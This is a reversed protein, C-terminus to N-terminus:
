SCLRQPCQTVCASCAFCEKQRQVRIKNKDVKEFVGKPCVLLCIQCDNCKNIDQQIQGANYVGETFVHALSQVGLKHMLWEAESPRGSVIGRLDFGFWLTIISLALMSKWYIFAPAHFVYISLIVIALVTSLSLVVAKLWGSNGPIYSFGAYLIFGMAWFLASLALFIHPKFLLAIIGAAIWLIFNMSLLMEMRFLFPFKARNMQHLSKRNKLFLPIDKAYAPGFIGSRGTEQKLVLRDIGPASFQPLIIQKHIVRDNVRSTRIVTIASHATLEGGCSACWVNIGNSPAVLLFCNEGRLAKEVRRVTLHFNGTLLVPSNKDPNGIIRLGPEVPNPFWRGAFDWVTKIFSVDDQPQKAKPFHPKGIGNEKKQMAAIVVFSDLFSRQESIIQFDSAIIEEDIREVAKTGTQAILYTLLSLPLRMLAHFVKKLFGRPRVESALIFIGDPKLHNKIQKLALFREETYLESFVLTSIILDFKKEGFLSDIEVAGAQHLTIRNQLGRKEMKKRAVGLMGASIDLGWARAGARAAEILLSGTGCGIDLVETGAKVYDRIIQEKIRKAHGGSLLNIGVDYREPRNELIKMFIYSFM